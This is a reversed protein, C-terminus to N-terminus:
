RRWLFAHNGLNRICSWAPFADYVLFRLGHIASVATANKQFGRITRRPATRLRSVASRSGPAVAGGGGENAKDDTDSSQNQGFAGDIYFVFM